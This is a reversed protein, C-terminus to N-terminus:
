VPPRRANRQKSAHCVARDCLAQSPAAHGRRRVGALETDERHTLMCASYIRNQMHARLAGTAPGGPRWGAGTWRTRPSGGPRRSSRRRGSRAGRAAGAAATRYRTLTLTLADALGKEVQIREVHPGLWGTACSRPARARPQRARLGRAGACTCGRICRRAAPPPLYPAINCAGTRRASPAWGRGRLVLVTVLGERDQLRVEIARIRQQRQGVLREHGLHASGAKSSAQAQRGRKTLSAQHAWYRESVTYDATSISYRSRCTTCLHRQAFKSTANNSLSPLITASGCM